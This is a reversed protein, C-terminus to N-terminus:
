NQLTAPVADARYLGTNCYVENPSDNDWLIKSTVAKSFEKQLAMRVVHDALILLLNTRWIEPIASDALVLNQAFHAPGM